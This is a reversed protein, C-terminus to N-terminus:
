RPVNFEAGTLTASTKLAGILCLLAANMVPCLWGEDSGVGLGSSTKSMRSYVRGCPNHIKIVKIMNNEGMVLM